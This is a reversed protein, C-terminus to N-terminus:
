RRKSTTSKRATTRKSPKAAPAPDDGPTAPSGPGPRTPDPEDGEAADDADPDPDGPERVFEVEVDILDLFSGTDGAMRRTLYVTLPMLEDTVDLLWDLAAREAAEDKAKRAAVLAAQAADTERELRYLHKAGIPEGVRRTEERLEWMVRVTARGSRIQDYERGDILM